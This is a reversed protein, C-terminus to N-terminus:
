MRAGMFFAAGTARPPKQKSRTQPPASEARPKERAVLANIVEFLKDESGAMSVDTVYKGNVVVTPTGTIKYRRNLDEAKM